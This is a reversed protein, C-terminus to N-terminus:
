AINKLHIKTGDDNWCIIDEFENTKYNIFMSAINLSDVKSIQM